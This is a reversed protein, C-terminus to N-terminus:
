NLSSSFCRLPFRSFSTCLAARCQRGRPLGRGHREAEGEVAEGEFIGVVSVLGMEEVVMEEVVMEEVVEGEIGFEVVHVGQVGAFGVFNVVGVVGVVEVVKEVVVFGVIPVIEVEVEVEDQTGETVM